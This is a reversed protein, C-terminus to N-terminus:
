EKSGDQSGVVADHIQKIATKANGEQVIAVASAGVPLGAARGLEVKNTVEVFPIGKAKSLPGLHMIVEKPDTDKAVVVLKAVGKEAVKTVENTGKRIKGSAHAQEIAELAKDALQKEDM